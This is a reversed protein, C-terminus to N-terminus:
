KPFNVIDVWASCMDARRGWLAAGVSTSYLTHTLIIVRSGSVAALVLFCDLHQDDASPIFLSGNLGHFAVSYRFHFCNGRVITYVFSVIAYVFSM